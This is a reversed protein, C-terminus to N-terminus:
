FNGNLIHAYMEKKRETTKENIVIRTGYTPLEVDYMLLHLLTTTRERRILNRVHRRFVNHETM